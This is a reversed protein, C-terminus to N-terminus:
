EPSISDPTLGIEIRHISLSGKRHALRNGMQEFFPPASYPYDDAFVGTNWTIHQFIRKHGTDCGHTTIGTRHTDKGGRADGKDGRIEM